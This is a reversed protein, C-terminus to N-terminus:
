ASRLPPLRYEGDLLPARPLYTRFVLGFPRQQPAPLWNASRAGGPDKRSIYIEISGDSTRVLGPTRDGISYRNAPNDFLYFQGDPTAEYMTLSWFADVPPLANGPLTLRWDKASDFRMGGSPGIPRMYMAEVVPLAALGSLAVQARYMYDQGFDGLNPKPYIWGDVVPGQRRASILLAKADAVGAAIEAAQATSFRKADFGGGVRIGLPAIRELIATDTAPPPNEILLAQLSEFYESWPASRTAYQRRPPNARPGEIAYKDQIAHARPLDDSGDTLLRFLVWMWPTPSRIALPDDTAHQPGVITFRGGNPGTTRTGLVAFNNTYMDMLAASLYREGTPPITITVPGDNLNIWSRSNLTDNNPTTIRQTQPTTPARLHFIKNPPTSALVAARANASEILPLGYLWADRAAARLESVSARAFSVYSSLLGAAAFAQILERRNM